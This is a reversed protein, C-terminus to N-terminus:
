SAAAVRYRTLRGDSQEVEIMAVAAEDAEGFRPLAEGAVNTAESAIVPEDARELGLIREFLKAIKDALATM